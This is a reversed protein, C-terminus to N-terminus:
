EFACRTGANKKRKAIWSNFQDAFLRRGKAAAFRARWAQTQITSRMSGSVSNLAVASSHWPKDARSMTM